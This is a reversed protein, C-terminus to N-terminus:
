MVHYPAQLQAIGLSIAADGGGGALPQPQLRPAGWRRARVRITPPAAPGGAHPVDPVHWAVLQYM